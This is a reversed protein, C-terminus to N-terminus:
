KSITCSKVEVEKGCRSGYLRRIEGALAEPGEVVMADPVLSIHDVTFAIGGHQLVWQMAIADNEDDGAYVIEINGPELGLFKCLAQVGYAKNIEPLFQVEIVEPGRFMRVLYSNYWTEMLAAIQRRSDDSSKRTHIAISWKKDEIEIGPMVALKMIIPLLQVRAIKLRNKLEEDAIWREKGEVFWEIGSGGGLFVGPVDVRPILDELLRSSLVAVCERPRAVLERLLKKCDPHIFAESREPVIPSLTGDFDFFWLRKCSASNM